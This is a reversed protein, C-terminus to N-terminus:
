ITFNAFPRMRGSIRNRKQSFHRSFHNGSCRRTSRQHFMLRKFMVYVCYNCLCSDQYLQRPQFILSYRLFDVVNEKYLKWNSKKAAHEENHDMMRTVIGYKIPDSERLVLLRIATICWYIPSPTSFDEVKLQPEVKSFIQCEKQHEEGYACMEECVTNAM